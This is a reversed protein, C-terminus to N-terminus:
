AALTVANKKMKRQRWWVLLGGSAFVLGPLGAGAIPGPVGAVVLPEIDLSVGGTINDWCCGASINFNVDNLPGTTNTVITFTIPGILPVYPASSISQLMGGSVEAAQYAALAAAPTAYYFTQPGYPTNPPSVVFPINYYVGPGNQGFPYPNISFGNQFGPNPVCGAVGCGDYGQYTGGTAYTVSYTGPDFHVTTGSYAAGGPGANLDVLLANAANSSLVGCVAVLAAAFVHRFQM